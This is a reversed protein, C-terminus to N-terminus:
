SKGSWEESGKPMQPKDSESGGSALRQLETTYVVRGHLNAQISVRDWSGALTQWSSMTWKTEEDSDWGCLALQLKMYKILINLFM